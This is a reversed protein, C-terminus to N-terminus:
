VPLGFAQRLYRRLAQKVQRRAILPRPGFALGLQEDRFGAARMANRILSGHLYGEEIHGWLHERNSEPGQMEGWTKGDQGAMLCLWCDGANPAPLEPMKDLRDCFAKIQRGLAEQRQIEQQGEEPLDMAQGDSGLRMGDQFAVLGHPGQVYWVGRVSQIQAPSFAAIKAKTTPTKWGGSDLQWSGGPWRVVVDTGRYRWATAGDARRYEFTAYAVRKAKAGFALAAGAMVEAKTPAKTGYLGSM